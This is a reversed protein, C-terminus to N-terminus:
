LTSAVGKQYHRENKYKQSIDPNSNQDRINKFPTLLKLACESFTIKKGFAQSTPL